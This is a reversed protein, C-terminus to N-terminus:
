ISIFTRAMSWVTESTIKRGNKQAYGGIINYQPFIGPFLKFAVYFWIQGREAGPTHYVNNKGPDAGVGM